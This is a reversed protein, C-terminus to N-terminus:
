QQIALDISRENVVAPRSRMLSRKTAWHRWRDVPRDVLAYLAVSFILSLSLVSLGGHDKGGLWPTAWVISIAPIHVIYLPYSLDGVIRDFRCAKSAIFLFPILVAVMAYYAFVGFNNTWIARHGSPTLWGVGIIVPLALFGVVHSSSWKAALLYLRYALVGAFFYLLVGLFFQYEWADTDAGTIWVGASYLAAGAFALLPWSLRQLVIFPAVVYFMLELAVTFMQGLYLDNEGLGFQYLLPGPVLLFDRLNFPHNPLLMFCITLVVWYAPFLRLIRNSYFLLIGQFDRGYRQDLVMSIYFGSIIMFVFVASFSFLFNFKSFRYHWNLVTLALLMRLVGVANGEVGPTSHNAGDHRKQVGGTERALTAIISSFLFEGDAWL